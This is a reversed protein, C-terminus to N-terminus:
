LDDATNISIFNNNTILVKININNDLARMQELSLEIESKSQDLSVFKLLCNRTFGYIGIHKYVGGLRNDILQRTFTSANMDENVYAKVVNDDQLEDSYLCTSVITMMDVEYMNFHCFMRVFKDILIPDIFPEDAQVNIITDITSDNKVVEAIRDTGSKHKKSTMILEYPYEKLKEYSENDDIAIIIRDITKCKAIQNATHIVMPVGNIDKLIKKPFRVSGLRAPIIVVKNKTEESMKGKLIM